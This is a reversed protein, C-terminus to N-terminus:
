FLIMLIMVCLVIFSSNVFAGGTYSLRTVKGVYDNLSNFNRYVTFGNNANTNLDRVNMGNGELFNARATVTRLLDLDTRSILHYDNFIVWLASDCNGYNQTGMYLFAPQHQIITELKINKSPNKKTNNAYGQLDLFQFLRSTNGTTGNGLSVSEQKFPVSIILNDTGLDLSKGPPSYTVNRKFILQMEADYYIGNVQHESGVRFIVNYLIFQYIAWDKLFTIRALNVNPDFAFGVARFDPFATWSLTTNLRLDDKGLIRFFKEDFFFSNQTNIPIPSQQKILSSCTGNNVFYSNTPTTLYILLLAPLLFFSVM